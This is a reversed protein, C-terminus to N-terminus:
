QNVLDIVNLIFPKKKMVNMFRRLTYRSNFIALQNKYRGIKSGIIMCGLTHTRYGKRVDGAWTGNHILIGGRDPVDILIYVNKFKRGYHLVCKYSGPVICSYRRENARWPLELIYCKFNLPTFLMSVTGEDSSEYRILICTVM